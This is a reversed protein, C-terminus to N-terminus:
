EKNYNEQSPYVFTTKRVIHIREGADTAYAYIQIPEVLRSGDDKSKYQKARILVAKKRSKRSKISFPGKPKLVEFNEDKIYVNNGASDKSLKRVEFYYTHKDSETNEFLFNYVNMVSVTGDPLKDLKYARTERNIDLTMYEKSAGTFIMGVILMSLVVAYGIVSPRFFRTKGAKLETQRTSSWEVLSPKGLNGMVTTCADVCELCNICELQLGQRIDIHTPCVKVCSECTTCENEPELQKTNEVLKDKHDYIVGGRNFDYVAMLTDDDYLVSQVRSYPCVYICFNEKIFVIDIFLFLAVAVHFGIFVPHDQWNILYTFFEEPPVFFWMFNASAFGSLVLSIIWITVQKARNKGKSYDPEKQKNKSSKRLKFIKTEIFDRLVARFMTQPCVWGCFARGAVLTLGFIGIFLIMLIFPLMYLEQMSFSIFFLDLKKHDFSLLFFHNGDVIVWPTLWSVLAAFLFLVYRRYRFSIKKPLKQVKESMPM